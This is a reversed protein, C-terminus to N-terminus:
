SSRWAAFESVGSTPLPHWVLGRRCCWGLLTAHHAPLYVSLYEPAVVAVNCRVIRQECAARPQCQDSVHSPKFDIDDTDDHLASVCDYSRCSSFFDEMATIDNVCFRSDRLYPSQHRQTGVMLACRSSTKSFDPMSRGRAKFYNMQEREVRGRHCAQISTAAADESAPAM